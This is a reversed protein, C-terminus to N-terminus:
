IQEVHTVTGNPGQHGDLWAGHEECAFWFGDSTGPFVKLTAPQGCETSDVFKECERQYSM